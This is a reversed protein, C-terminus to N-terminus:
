VWILNEPIGGRRLLDVMASPGAGRRRGECALVPLPGWQRYIWIAHECRRFTDYDPLAYPREYHRPEVASGLVVIAQVDPPPQFPRAPYPTELPLAVVWDAPPWSVLALGLGGGLAVNRGRSPTVLALGGFAIMCCLLLLPETYTMTTKRRRREAVETWQTGVSRHPQWPRPWAM